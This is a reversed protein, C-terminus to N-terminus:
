RRGGLQLRGEDLRRAQSDIWGWCLAEDVIEDWSVHKGDVHQKYRVLWLGQRQRHNEALWARLAAVDEIELREHTM